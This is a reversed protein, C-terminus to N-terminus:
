KTLQKEYQKLLRTSYEAVKHISYLIDAKKDEEVTKLEELFENINIYLDQLKNENIESTISDSKFTTYIHTIFKAVKYTKARIIGKYYFVFDEFYRKEIFKMNNEKLFKKNWCIDWVNEYKWNRIRGKLTSNEETPICEEEFRGIIKFGLYVIDPKDKGIVNNIKELTTNEAFYDDADLFVIYEGIANQIGKNRSGGAKLNEKNRIIKIDKYKLLVNYTDDISCDDIVIIEYNKFTQEKISNIAREIEKESNYVPIIISFKKLEM